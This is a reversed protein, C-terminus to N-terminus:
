EYDGKQPRGRSGAGNWEKLRVTRKGFGKAICSRRRNYFASVAKRLLCILFVQGYRTNRALEKCIVNEAGDQWNEKM